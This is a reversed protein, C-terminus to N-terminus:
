AGREAQEREIARLTAALRRERDAEWKAPAEPDGNALREAIRDLDKLIRQIGEEAEPSRESPEPRRIWSFPRSEVQAMVVPVFFPAVDFDTTGRPQRAELRALRKLRQLSM